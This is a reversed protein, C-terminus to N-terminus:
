VGVCKGVGRRVGVSKWMERVEGCVGVCKKMGGGWVSGWIEEWVEVYKGM